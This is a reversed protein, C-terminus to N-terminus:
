ANSQFSRRYAFSRSAPRRLRKTGTQLIALWDYGGRLKAAFLPVDDGSNVPIRKLSFIDSATNTTGIRTSVCYDYDASQLSDTLVTVFHGDQEPFKYPYCFGDCAGAETEIASHSRALEDKLVDRGVERLQPHSCTHSGFTIGQAHLERVEEWSLHQKGRIGPCGNGIYDTPLFVTATFGFQNLVPFAHTYFDRYGDDFTLVIPNRTELQSNCTILSHSQTPPQSNRTIIGVAEELSIVTYNNEHLFKMHEAFRKPSTNIWFYPHGKEPEDSISHYM